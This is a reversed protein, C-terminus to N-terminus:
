FSTILRIKSLAPYDIGITGSNYLIQPSVSTLVVFVWMTTRILGITIGIVIGFAQM